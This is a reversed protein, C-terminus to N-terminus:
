KGLVCFFSFFGSLLRSLLTQKYIHRVGDSCCHYILFSFMLDSVISVFHTPFSKLLFPSGEFQATIIFM